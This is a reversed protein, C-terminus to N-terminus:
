GNSYCAVKMEDAALIGIDGNGIIGIRVFIDKAFATWEPTYITAAQRNTSPGFSQKKTRVYTWSASDIVELQATTNLRSHPLVTMQARCYINPLGTRFPKISIARGVDSWGSIGSIVYYDTLSVVSGPFPLATGHYFYCYNWEQDINSVLQSQWCSWAGISYANFYDNTTWTWSAANASPAVTFISTIFALTFVRCLLYLKRPM